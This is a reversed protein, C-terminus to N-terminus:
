QEDSRDKGILEECAEPLTSAGEGKLDKRMESVLSNYIGFPDVNRDQTTANTLLMAHSFAVAWCWVPRNAALELVITAEELRNVDETTFENKKVLALARTAKSLYDGYSSAALKIQTDQTVVHATIWGGVGAGILAALASSILSPIFTKLM